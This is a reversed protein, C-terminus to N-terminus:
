FMMNKLLKSISLGAPCLEYSKGRELFSVHLYYSVIKVVFQFAFNFGNQFGKDVIELKFSLDPFIHLVIFFGQTYTCGFLIFIMIKLLKSMSLGAPCLSDQQLCENGKWQRVNYIYTM